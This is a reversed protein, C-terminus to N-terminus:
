WAPSEPTRGAHQSDAIADQAARASPEATGYPPNSLMLRVRARSPMTEAPDLAGPRGRYFVLPATLLLCARAEAAM